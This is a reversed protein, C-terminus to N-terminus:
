TKRSKRMFQGTVELLADVDTETNSEHVAVRIGGVGSAYRMTVYIGARELRNLLKKEEAAGGPLCFTVIGAIEEESPKPGGLFKLGLENLGNELRKRLKRIRAWVLSPRLREFDEIAADLAVAGLWNPYGGTQMREADLRPPPPDFSSRDPWEMYRSWGIEPEALALYGRYTPDLVELLRPAFCVFGMGFPSRLWKHGGACYADVGLRGFDVSHAGIEQIGDVIIFTGYQAAINCIAGLDARFGSIEQVASVVIARTRSNIRVAFDAPVICGESTKVPLLEIGVRKCVGQWVITAGMFEIDAVLVNDGRSLPLSTAIIGLAQTTNGVLLINAPDAHLFRAVRRRAREVAEMQHITEETGTSNFTDLGAVAAQVRDLTRRTPRGMSAHDLYHIQSKV